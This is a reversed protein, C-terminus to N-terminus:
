PSPCTDGRVQAQIWQIQRTVRSYVGPATPHGCQPSGWSVVGIVSFHNWEKTMLPGGSDGHCSDQGPRGACLMNETIEQSNWISICATNSMTDVDVEYPTNPQRGDKFRGWGAVTATSSDYDRDSGPLCAPLMRSSFTVDKVLELMAFDNDTNATNYQPHTTYQSVGVREEGDPRTWDHEGILVIIESPARKITQSRDRFMCHAATLVSKSSLLTGGCFPKRSGTEVLAVLWPYESKEVPQGGVIRKRSVQSVGCQCSSPSSSNGGAPAPRPLQVLIICGSCTQLLALVALSRM